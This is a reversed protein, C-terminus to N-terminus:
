AGASMKEDIVPKQLQEMDSAVTQKDILPKDTLKRYNFQDRHLSRSVLKKVQAFMHWDVGCHVLSCCLCVSCLILLV